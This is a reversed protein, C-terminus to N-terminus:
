EPEFFKSLLTEGESNRKLLPHYDQILRWQKLTERLEDQPDIFFEILTKHGKDWDELM